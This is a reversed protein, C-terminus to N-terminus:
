PIEDIEIVNSYAVSEAPTYPSVTVQARLEEDFSFWPDEDLDEWAVDDPRWELDVFDRGNARLFTRTRPPGQLNAEDDDYEPEPDHGVLEVFVDYGLNTNRDFETFTIRYDVEIHANAVVQDIRLVNQTCTAM